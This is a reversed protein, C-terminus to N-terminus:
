LVRGMYVHSPMPGQVQATPFKWLGAQSVVTAGIDHGGNDTSTGYWAGDDVVGEGAGRMDVTSLEELQPMQRELNPVLRILNHVETTM